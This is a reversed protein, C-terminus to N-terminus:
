AYSKPVRARRWPYYSNSDVIFEQKCANRIVSAIDSAYDDIVFIPTREFGLCDVRFAVNEALKIEPNEQM